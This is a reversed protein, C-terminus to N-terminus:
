CTCHAGMGMITTARLGPTCQDISIKRTGESKALITRPPIQDAWTGVPQERLHLRRLDDQRVPARRCFKIHPLDEKRHEHRTDYKVKANFYSPRGTTRCIAYM